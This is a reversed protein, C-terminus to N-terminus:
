RMLLAEITEDLTANEEVTKANRDYYKSQPSFLSSLFPVFRQDLQTLEMIGNVGIDYIEALELEAAERQKFLLSPRKPLKEHAGSKTYKNLTRLQNSLSTM